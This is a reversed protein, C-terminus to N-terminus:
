DLLSWSTTCRASVVVAQPELNLSQVSPLRDAEMAFGAARAMPAYHQDDGDSIRLLTGLRVGLAEAYGEARRRADAVALVQAERAAEAQDSLEWDPGNLATPEQGILAAVLTELSAQDAARLQYQQEAHVGAQEGKDGSWYPHVSVRRSRVEVGDQTLLPEVREIRKGLLRVAEARETATVAFTVWLQARDAIREVEGTGKTM